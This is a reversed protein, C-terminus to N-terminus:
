PVPTAVRLPLLFRLWQDVAQRPLIALLSLIIQTQRARGALVMTQMQTPQLVKPMTLGGKGKGTGTRHITALVAPLVV